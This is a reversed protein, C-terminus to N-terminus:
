YIFTLLSLTIIYIRVITAHSHSGWVSTLWPRTSIFSHVLPLSYVCLDSPRLRLGESEVREEGHLNKSLIAARYTHRKFIDKNRAHRKQANDPRRTVM